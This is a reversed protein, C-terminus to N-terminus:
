LFFLLSRLTEFFDGFSELELFILLIGIQSVEPSLTQFKIKTLRCLLVTSRKRLQSLIRNFPPLSALMWQQQSVAKLVLLFKDPTTKPSYVSTSVFFPWEHASSCVSVKRNRFCDHSASMHCRGHCSVGPEGMTILGLIVCIVNENRRTCKLM